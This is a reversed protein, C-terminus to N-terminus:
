PTVADTGRLIHPRGWTWGAKEAWPDTKWYTGSYSQMVSQPLDTVEGTPGNIPDGTLTVGSNGPIVRMLARMLSQHGPECASEYIDGVIAPPHTIMPAMM